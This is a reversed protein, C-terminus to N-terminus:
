LTTYILVAPSRLAPTSPAFPLLTVSVTHSQNPRQRRAGAPKVSPRRGGGEWDLARTGGCEKRGGPMREVVSKSLCGCWAWHVVRDQGHGGRKGLLGNGRGLLLPHTGERV